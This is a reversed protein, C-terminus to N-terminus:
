FEKKLTMRIDDRYDRGYPNPKNIDLDFQWNKGFKRRLNLSRDELNLTSKFDFPIDQKVEKTELVSYLDKGLVDMLSSKIGTRLTDFKATLTDPSVISNKAM